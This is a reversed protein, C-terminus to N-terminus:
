PYFAQNTTQETPIFKYRNFERIDSFRILSHNLRQKSLRVKKPIMFEPSERQVNQHKKQTANPDQYRM